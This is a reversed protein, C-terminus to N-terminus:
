PILVWFFRIRSNELFILERFNDHSFNRYNDTKSEIFLKLVTITFDMRGALTEIKKASIDM